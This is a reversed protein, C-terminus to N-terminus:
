IDSNADDCDINPYPDNGSDDVISVGYKYDSGIRNAELQARTLSNHSSIAFKPDGAPTGFTEAQILHYM